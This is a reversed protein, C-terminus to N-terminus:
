GPGIAVALKAESSVWVQTRANPPLRRSKSRQREVEIGLTMSTRFHAV